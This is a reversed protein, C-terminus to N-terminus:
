VWHTAVRIACASSAWWIRRFLYVVAIKWSAVAVKYPSIQARSVFLAVRGFPRMELALIGKHVALSLLVRAGDRCVVRHDRSRRGVNCRRRHVRRMRALLRCELVRVRVIRRDCWLILARIGGCAILLVIRVWRLLGLLKRRQLRHLM